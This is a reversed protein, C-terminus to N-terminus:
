YRRVQCACVSEVSAAPVEPPDPTPPLPVQLYPYTSFHSPGPSPQSRYRLCLPQRETPVVSSLLDFVSTM